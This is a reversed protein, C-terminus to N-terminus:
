SIAQESEPDFLRIKDPEIKLRLGGGKKAGSEAAVRAVMLEGFSGISGSSGNSGSSGSDGSSGNESDGKSGGDGGGEEEDAGIMADLTKSHAVQERGPSFYVYKESGMSEIVEPEVEVISQTDRTHRDGSGSGSGNGSGNLSDAVDADEMHEPRIGLIVGSDVYEGIEPHESLTEEALPIRTERTGEKEGKGGGNTGEKGGKEGGFVAAYGSPSQTDRELRANIFNMAPSGIFGAVFINKPHEYMEQPSAVQQVEGDKLVVIRDAMTM